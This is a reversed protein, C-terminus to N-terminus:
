RAEGLGLHAALVEQFERVVHDVGDKPVVGLSRLREFSSPVEEFRALRGDPIYDFGRVRGLRAEPRAVLGDAPADLARHPALHPVGLNFHKPRRRRHRRGTISGRRADLPLKRRTRNRAFDARRARRLDPRRPPGEASRSRQTM